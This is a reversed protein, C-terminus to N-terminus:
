LDEDIRKRLIGSYTVEMGRLKTRLKSLESYILEYNKNIDNQSFSLTVSKLKKSKTTTIVHDVTGPPSDDSEHFTWDRLEEYKLEPNIQKAKIRKRLEEDSMQALKELSNYANPLIDKHQLLLQNSGIKALKYVLSKGMIGRHQLESVLEKWLGSNSKDSQYKNLMVCVQLTYELSKKWSFTIQNVIDDVQKSVIYQNSKRVVVNSKTTM